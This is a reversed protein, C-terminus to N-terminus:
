KRFINEPVRKETEHFVHFHVDNVNEMYLSPSSARITKWRRGALTFPRTSAAHAPLWTAYFGQLGVFELACWRTSVVSVCTCIHIRIILYKFEDYTYSRLIFLFILTPYQTRVDDPLESWRRRLSDCLFFFFFLSLFFVVRGRRRRVIWGGTFGVAWIALEWRHLTITVLKKKM